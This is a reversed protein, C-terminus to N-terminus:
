IASAFDWQCDGGAWALITIPRTTLAFHRQLVRQVHSHRFSVSEPILTGGATFHRESGVCRRIRVKPLVADGIVVWDYSSGCRVAAYRVALGNAVGEGCSSDDRSGLRSTISISPLPPM